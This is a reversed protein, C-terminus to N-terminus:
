KLEETEDIFEAILRRQANRDLSQGVVKDAISLSLDAVQQRLETMAQERERAIEERARDILQQAEARAEDLLEQRTQASM